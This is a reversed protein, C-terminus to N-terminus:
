KKNKSKDEKSNCDSDKEIEDFPKLGELSELNSLKKVTKKQKIWFM